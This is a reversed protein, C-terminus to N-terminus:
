FVSTTWHLCKKLHPSECKKTCSAFLSRSSPTSGTRVLPSTDIKRSKTRVDTINPGKCFPKEIKSVNSSWYIRTAKYGVPYIASKSHFQVMQHTSLQGVAHFMLAGVRVIHLVINIIPNSALVCQDKISLYNRVLTFIARIFLPM